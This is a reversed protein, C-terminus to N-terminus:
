FDKHSSEKELFVQGNEVRYIKDCADLIEEKHSVFLITKDRKAIKLISQIVDKETEKDLNSTIEDFVLIERDTFLARAIAIRQKQGGSLKSGEEGINTDLGEQM